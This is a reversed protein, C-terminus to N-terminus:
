CLSPLGTKITMKSFVGLIYLINAISSLLILVGISKAIKHKWLM